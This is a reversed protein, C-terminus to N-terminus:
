FLKSNSLYQLPNKNNNFKTAVWVLLFGEERNRRLHISWLQSILSFIFLYKWGTTEVFRLTKRNFNFNTKTTTTTMTTTKTTTVKLISFAFIINSPCKSFVFCFLGWAVQRNTNFYFVLHCKTIVLFFSFWIIGLKCDLISRFICCCCCCFYTKTLKNNRILRLNWICNFDFFFYYWNM